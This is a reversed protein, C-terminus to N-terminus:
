NFDVPEGSCHTLLHGETGLEMGLLCGLSSDRGWWEKVIPEGSIPYRVLLHPTFALPSHLSPSYADPGGGLDGLDGSWLARTM